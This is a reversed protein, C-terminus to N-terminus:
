TNTCKMEVKGHGHKEEINDVFNIEDGEFQSRLISWAETWKESPSFAVSAIWSKTFWVQTCNLIKNDSGVNPDSSVILLFLARLVFVSHCM